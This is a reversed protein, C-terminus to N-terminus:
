VTGTLCIHTESEDIERTYAKASVSALVQTDDNPAFREFDPSLPGRPFDRPQRNCM